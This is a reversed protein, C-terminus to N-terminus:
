TIASSTPLSAATALSAASLDSAMALSQLSARASANGASLAASFARSDIVGLSIV